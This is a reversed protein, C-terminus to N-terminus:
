FDLIEAEKVMWRTVGSGCLAYSSRVRLQMVGSDRLAFSSHMVGSGRLAYSSRWWNSAV